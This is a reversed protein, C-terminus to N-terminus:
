SIVTMESIPMRVHNDQKWLLLYRLPIHGNFLGKLVFSRSWKGPHM